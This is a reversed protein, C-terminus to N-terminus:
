MVVYVAVNSSTRYCNLFQSYAFIAKVIQNDKALYFDVTLYKYSYVSLPFLYSSEQFLWVYMYMVRQIDEEHEHWETNVM